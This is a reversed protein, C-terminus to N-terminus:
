QRILCSIYLSFVHRGHIKKRLSVKNVLSPGKFNTCRQSQSVPRAQWHRARLALGLASQASSSAFIARALAHEAWRGICGPVQRHEPCRGIGAGGPAQPCASARLAAASTLPPTRPPLAGGNGVLGEEVRAHHSSAAPTVLLFVYCCVLLVICGSTPLTYSNASNDLLLLCRGLLLRKKFLLM